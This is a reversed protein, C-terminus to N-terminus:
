QFRWRLALGYRNVDYDDGDAREEDYSWYEGVLAVELDETVDFGARGRAIWSEVPWTEGADDLRTASGSLRARGLKARGHATVTTLALDYRSVGSGGRPLILDTDSTLDVQDLDLGFGTEGDDAAWGFGIGYADSSRDLGAIRDPNDASEFRGQGHAEWGGGLSARLRLTLRDVTEPDTRVVFRDFSGREYEASGTVGGRSWAAGVLAGDSDRTVAVTEGEEGLRWAVDRSATFGGAWVSWGRDSWEVTLRQRDDTLDIRSRQDISGAIDFVQGLPNTVRLIREGRLAADTSTDRYDAELRLTWHAALRIGLRLNGALTDFDASSVVDDIFEVRGVRGGAIDFGESVAGPGDLEAPSWVLSGAVEVRSGGYTAALRTTPVDRQEDRRDAAVAFLDPDGGALNESGAPRRRDSREYTALAQEFVLHVPLTRTEIRVAAERMTDDLDVALPYLENLGFIPRRVSGQRDYYDLDLGVRAAAWGDYVLSGRWRQIDWDDARLGLESERLSFFSERRDYALAFRWPSDLKVELRARQAAEANGFGHATLTFRPEKSGEAASTLVLDELVFGEDLNVQSRFSDESGDADQALFALGVSGSWGQASAAHAGALLLPVVLAAARLGGGARDRM